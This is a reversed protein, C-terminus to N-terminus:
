AQEFWVAVQDVKWRRKLVRVFERLNGAVFTSYSRKGGPARVQLYHSFLPEKAGVDNVLYADEAELDESFVIYLPKANDLVYRKRLWDNCIVFIYTSNGIALFNRPEWRNTMKNFKLRRTVQRM